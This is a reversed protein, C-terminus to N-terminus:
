FLEPAQARLKDSVTVCSAVKGSFVSFIGDAHRTVETPREDTSSVNGPVVRVAWHSHVHKAMEFDPLFYTIAQKMQEFRSSIHGPGRSRELMEFFEPEVIESDEKMYHVAEKVHGIVSYEGSDMPDMSCFPGDMVVLSQRRLSDPLQVVPKEVLQIRYRRMPDFGGQRLLMDNAGYTCLIVADYDKAQKWDFISGLRVEIGSKEIERTLRRRLKFPSYLNEETKICLDVNRLFSPIPEKTFKLGHNELIEIYAEATVHSGNTSIAYRNNYNTLIVDQFRNEFRLTAAKTQNITEPSRPYHFGRHLRYQNALSAERLLADNKECLTIDLGLSDLDLALTCGFIGGGM